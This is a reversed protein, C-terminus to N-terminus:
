AHSAEEVNRRQRELETVAGDAQASDPVNGHWRYDYEMFPVGKGPVTHAIICTPANGHVRSQRLVETVHGMDNGDIEKVHWNFARYKDAFPELPMVHETPGSIQIKNRDVIATLNKLKLKGALMIAEWTQGEQHEGDSLIVYTHWPKRDLRAALAMGIAQSLGQGLPGSSTEIGPLDLRHPHGQLRSRFKRLTLLEDRPFYGAEALTAYLAPCIHGASLVVRDREEWDPRKPDHNAVAFYLATFIDAMGLAGAAHGSGAYQLMDVVSERVTIAIRELQRVSIDM